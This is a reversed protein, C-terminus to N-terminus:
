FSAKWTANKFNKVMKFSRFLNRLSNVTKLTSPILVLYRLLPNCAIQNLFCRLYSM